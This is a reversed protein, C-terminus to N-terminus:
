RVAAAAATIAAIADNDAGTQAAEKCPTVDDM